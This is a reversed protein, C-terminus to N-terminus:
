SKFIHKGCKFSNLAYPAVLSPIVNKNNISTKNDPYANYQPSVTTVLNDYAVHSLVM